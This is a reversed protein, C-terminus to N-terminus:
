CRQWYWAPIGVAERRRARGAKATYTQNLMGLLELLIGKRQSAYLTFVQAVLAAASKHLAVLVTHHQVQLAELVPCSVPDCRLASLALELASAIIRQAPRTLALSECLAALVSTLTPFV